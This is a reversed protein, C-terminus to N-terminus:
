KKRGLGSLGPPLKLGDPGGPGTGGPLGPPLAGPVPAAPGAGGPGGMMAPSVGGKGFMQALAGRMLGKKGMRGMKKMVDQMQRHMKLLRNVEQVEVGAGRAVRKKRSAQLIQPNRREEKTMSQIIAIQRRLLRDDLNAAELQKSLKGMGPLLGMIGQMGGMRLMQELQAKLDNMDFRGRAMRKMLREAEQQEITEQAKEVLSVIDGMGLIRGAVREAHFEELADLKEGTGIFRIPQGTVARMSLAAGGRADGDMRTLVVGTLGVQESFARAINVADQGTLADAVLLTENPRALDRVEAVEAMLEDDIHMRGATDLLVVDYGGLTAQQKARRAIQM